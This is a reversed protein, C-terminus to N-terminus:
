PPLGLITRLKQRVAGAHRLAARMARTSTSFGPYRFDVAYRSLIVLKPRFAKLSADYSLIDALLRELDHTRPISLEQEQLLAKLYKEARQQCHFCVADRVPEAAAAERQAVSWDGEAKRVWARTARKM